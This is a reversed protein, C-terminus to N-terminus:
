GQRRQRWVVLGEFVGIDPQRAGDWTNMMVQWELLVNRAMKKRKRLGKMMTKQSKIYAERRWWLCCMLQRSEWTYAHPHFLSLSLPSFLLVGHILSWPVSEHMIKAKTPNQKGDDRWGGKEEQSPSAPAGRLMPTNLGDDLMRLFILDKTHLFFCLFM